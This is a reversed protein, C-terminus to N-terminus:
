PAVSTTSHVVLVGSIIQTTEAPRVQVHAPSSAFFSAGLGVGLVLLSSTLLTRLHRRTAKHAAIENELKRTTAQRIQSSSPVETKFGTLGDGIRCSQMLSNFESETLVEIEKEGVMIATM